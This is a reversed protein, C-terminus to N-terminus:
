DDAAIGTNNATAEAPRDDTPPDSANAPSTETEDASESEEDKPGPPATYRIGRSASYM